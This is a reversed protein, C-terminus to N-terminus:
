KRGRRKWDWPAVPYDDAWLGRKKLRAADQLQKLEPDKSFYIHQWAWGEHVLERNLSRGGMLFVEALVRNYRDRGFVELTVKKGQVRKRVFQAADEAFPQGKEPADIGKLRVIEITDKIKIKLSDGDQVFVVRGQWLEEAAMAPLPLLLFALM